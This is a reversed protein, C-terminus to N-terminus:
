AILTKEDAFPILSCVLEIDGTDTTTILEHLAESKWWRTELVEQRSAGLGM